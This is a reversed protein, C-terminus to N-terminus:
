MTMTLSPSFTVSETRSVLFGGAASEAAENAAGAQGHFFEAFPKSAGGM